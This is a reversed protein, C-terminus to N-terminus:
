NKDAIIFWEYNFTSVIVMLPGVGSFHKQSVHSYMAMKKLKKEEQINVKFDPKEPKFGSEKKALQYSFRYIIKPFVAYILKKAGSNKFSETVVSSTVIHDPHGTIGGPDHTVILEAGTKDIFGIIQKTLTERDVSLLGQDHYDLQFVNQTEYVAAATKLEETRIKGLQESSIGLRNKASSMDGLTMCVFHVRVRPDKGAKLLSGGGYISEDDQHAFVALIDIMGDPGPKVGDLIDGHPVGSIGTVSFIAIILVTLIVKKM